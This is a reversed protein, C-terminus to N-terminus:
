SPTREQSEHIFSRIFMFKDQLLLESLRIYVWHSSDWGMTDNEKFIYHNALYICNYQCKESILCNKKTHKEDKKKKELISLKMSTFIM